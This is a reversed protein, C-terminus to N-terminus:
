FKWCEAHISGASGDVGTWWATDGRDSRRQVQDLASGRENCGVQEALRSFFILLENGQTEDLEQRMRIGM